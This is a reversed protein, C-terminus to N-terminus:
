PLFVPLPRALADVARCLITDLDDFLGALEAAWQLAPKHCRRMNCKLCCTLLNGPSNDGGRSRPVYHDLSLPVGRAGCWACAWKDRAYIRARLLPRCLQSSSRGKRKARAM